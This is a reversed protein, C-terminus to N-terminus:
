PVRKLGQNGPNGSELKHFFQQFCGVLAQMSTTRAELHAKHASRLM